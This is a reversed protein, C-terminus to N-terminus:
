APSRDFRSREECRFVQAFRGPDVVHSEVAIAARPPDLRPDAPIVYFALSPITVVVDFRHEERASFVPTSTGAAIASVFVLLLSKCM